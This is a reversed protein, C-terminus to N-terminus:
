RIKLITRYLDDPLMRDSQLAEELNEAPYVVRDGPNILDFFPNRVITGLSILEDVENIKLTGLVDSDSYDFGLKDHRYDFSERRVILLEDEVAVGDVFGLDIIAEDFRRQLIWAYVPMIKQVRDAAAALADTVRNNGTRLVSYESLLAGTAGSFLQWEVTFYRNGENASFILFYDVGSDRANGFAEGFNGANSVSGTIDIKDFRLLLHRFYEALDSEAHFHIMDGKLSYLGVTFRQRELDYQSIDFRISLADQQLSEEIEIMDAVERDNYGLDRLVKLETLYKSRFDLLDYISAFLLRGERSRPTLVLGRRFELLAKELYNREALAKGRIYHYEAFRERIPDGIELYDILLNELAIRSVEDDPQLTFARAYAQIAEDNNDLLSNAAGLTYWLLPEGRNSALVAEVTEVAKNYNKQEIYIKSLLLIADIYEPKLELALLTHYEADNLMGSELRHKAAIYQVQPSESYYDLVQELYIEAIDHKGAEDFIIILSLLARRNQPSIKLSQEYLAAANATQGFAIELEALGFRADLNNPQIAIISKFLEGAAEFEGLGLRIRGELGVLEVNGRDFVRARRVYILAEEYETLAFYAQALGVIPQLYNDNKELSSKFFEIARFIREQDLAEAGSRYLETSSNSRTVQATLPIFPICFLLCVVFKIATSRKV